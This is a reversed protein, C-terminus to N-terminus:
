EKYTQDRFDNKKTAISVLPLLLNGKWRCFRYSIYYRHLEGQTNNKRKKVCVLFQM